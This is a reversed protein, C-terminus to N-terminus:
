FPVEDSEPQHAETSTQTRGNGGGGEGKGLMVMREGVVKLKSRKQGDNEWTDLELRGEVLIQRGKELYEVCIEATRAWFTVDVFTTKEEYEGSQKKFRDNVAIGVETVATGSQIHRLEPERTVNGVLVVKNFSAM